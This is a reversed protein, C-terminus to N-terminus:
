YLFTWLNKSKCNPCIKARNSKNSRVIATILLYVLGGGFFFLLGIGIVWDIPRILPAVKWPGEYGCCTCKPVDHKTPQSAVGEVIAAGCKDCKQATEAMESGCNKCYMRADEMKYKKFFLIYHKM